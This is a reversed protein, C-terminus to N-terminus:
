RRMISLNGTTKPNEKYHASIFKRALPDTIKDYISPGVRKEDEKNWVPEKGPYDGSGLTHPAVNKGHMDKGWVKQAKKTPKAKNAEFLVFDDESNNPFAEHIATYDAGEYTEM